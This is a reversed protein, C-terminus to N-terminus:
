VIDAMVREVKRFYFLASVFLLAILGFSIYSYVSLADVGLVSWRFGEVVGAMPNLYYLVVAWEPLSAIITKAPYAIPTAYLGFQVLFPVVHQFDRYRITLASLWIGVALASIITLLIFFPLYVINVSPTVGYILMLVAMFLLAVVFDVFGVVAKSLPIVLRPFYIKKVMEQAGIISNGSQNLVFAFYAWASMGAIAFVPYPIGGTDVQVAMGFVVTFILLTAAPQIFAWFLGLFTQAYRVRLDRYALVWFLDRYHLLERLNLSLKGKGADVVTRQM